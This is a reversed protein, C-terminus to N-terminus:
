EVLGQVNNVRSQQITELLDDAEDEELMGAFFLLRQLQKIKEVYDDIVMKIVAQRSTKLQEAVTSVTIVLYEDLMIAQM